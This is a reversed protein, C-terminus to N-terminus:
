LILRKIGGATLVAVNFNILLALPHGTAKLYSLVQIHHVKALEDVSKLEVILQNGVLLDLRGEGVVKGKYTLKFAPQRAFPIKRLELAYCLAEEYVAEAYGVGLNRHVEIAAGIVDHTLKNLDVGHIRAKQKGLELEEEDM